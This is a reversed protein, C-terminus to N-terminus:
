THWCCGEGEKKAKTARAKPAGNIEACFLELARVGSCVILINLFITKRINRFLVLWFARKSGGAQRRGSLIGVAAAKARGKLRVQERKLPVM